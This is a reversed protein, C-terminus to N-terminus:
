YVLREFANSLQKILNVNGKTSLTVIYVHLRADTIKFKASEGASSLIFDEIWNLELHIKCNIFPIELSRWFNSLYKLPVVKKTNRVSSNTNNVANPTKLQKINSNNLIILLWILTIILFKMEKLSGYVERHIHIIIIINLWIARPCQLTFIIQKMLLYMMLKQRVPLFYHVIKLHLTQIMTQM